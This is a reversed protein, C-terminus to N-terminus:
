LITFVIDLTVANARALDGSRLRSRETLTLSIDAAMGEVRENTGLGGCATPKIRRFESAGSHEEGRMGRVGDIAMHEIDVTTDECIDALLRLLIFLNM